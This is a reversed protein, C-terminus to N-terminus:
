EEEYDYQQLEESDSSNNEVEMLDDFDEQNFDLEDQDDANADANVDAAAGSKLAKAKVNRDQELRRRDKERKQQDKKDKLSTIEEESKKVFEHHIVEGDCLGAQIKILRLDLRPGMEFLKIARKESVGGHTPLAVTAEPADEVDSESAFAGRSNTIANAQRMIFESIDDYGKLNPINTQIITKVSKSIGLTKVTIRFHRMEILNTESNLNFLVIRKADSLRMKTVKIAPFLNQLVTAVLSIHKEHGGFNNLVVIPSTQFELGPSKPRAQLALVDKSLSYSEVHFTLTPGRPIRGIRLNVGGNGSKSFVLLHTVMLQGAIMLFDKIKNGRREKLNTATNPEMVLRTDKVLQAVVPSLGGAKIVFSKPISADPPPAVHTRKKSKKKGRAM